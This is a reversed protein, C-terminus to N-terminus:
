TTSRCSGTSSSTRPRRSSRSISTATRRTSPEGARSASRPDREPNRAASRFEGRHRARLCARGGHDRPDQADRGDPPDRDPRAAAGVQAFLALAEVSAAECRWTSAPSPGASSSACPRWIPWRRASRAAASTSISPWSASPPRRARGARQAASASLCAALERCSITRSKMTLRWPTLRWSTTRSVTFASAPREPIAIM